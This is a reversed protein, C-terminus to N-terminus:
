KTRAPCRAEHKEIWTYPRAHNAPATLGCFKCVKRREEAM